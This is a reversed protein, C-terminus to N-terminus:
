TTKNAVPYFVHDMTLQLDYKAVKNNAASQSCRSGTQSLQTQCLLVGLRLRAESWSPITSGDPRKGDQRMLGVLQNSPM